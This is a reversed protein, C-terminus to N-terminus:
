DGRGGLHLREDLADGFDQAAYHPLMFEDHLRNGWRVLRQAYPKEWFAAVASRLLLTQVASMQANPPMELARYEVLGLRGAAHEAAGQFGAPRLPMLYGFGSAAGGLTAAEPGSPRLLALPWLFDGNPSGRRISEALREGLGPDRRLFTPFYWKLALAEEGVAVEFVQGQSGGGLGRLIRVPADIGGFRHSSALPLIWAM